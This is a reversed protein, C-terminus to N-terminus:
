RYKTPDIGFRKMWRQIQVRAKGMTRAVQSVNGHSETFRAILENRLTDDAVSMHDAGRPAGISGTASRPPRSSDHRALAPLVHELEIPGGGAMVTASVLCQRLERVNRPWHHRLLARAADPSLTTPAPSAPKPLLRALLMGLDEMRERLPPAVFTFGALRAYLDNRFAGREVLQQIPAHTAAVVRLDVAVPRTTGIPVVENEQLVRLLAAQSSQPLDGIEDLFLTGGDAARVYGIEDRTAGSFAGRAHGFLQAELLTEPLAGCNIAVFEGRRGSREHITRALLEKGSGTEGLLMIPVTSKAVRGLTEFSAALEPILTAFAAPLEALERETLDGPMSIPLPLHGRFWFFSHGLEFLDRDALVCGTAVEGNVRSGNTSCLDEFTWGQDTRRLRAHQASMRRDPLRISLRRVGGELTRKSGREGRGLAVEDINLLSHRAAGALPDECELALFLQPAVIPAPVISRRDRDNLTEDQPPQFM